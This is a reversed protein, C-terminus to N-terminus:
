GSASASRRSQYRWMAHDLRLPTWDHGRRTLAKAALRVLIAAQRPKPEGKMGLGTAVFRQVMRDPKVLDDDGALMRFYDFAIGSSQGPLGLVIAEALDLRDPLLDAFTDIKSRVLAQAFLLVAESKLIGSKSSTRQRNGFLQDAAEDPTRCAYLAVLDTVSHEGAGREERAPALLTWGTETCFRRVAAKTTSYRVGISFVADIICIPLSAYRFEGDLRTPLLGVAEVYDALQEVPTSTGEIEM